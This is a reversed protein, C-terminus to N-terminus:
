LMMEKRYAYSPLTRKRSKVTPPEQVVARWLIDLLSEDDERSKGFLM